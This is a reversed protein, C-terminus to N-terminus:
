RAGSLISLASRLRVAVDAEPGMGRDALARTAKGIESRSYGLRELALGLPDPGVAPEPKLDVSVPPLEFTLPLKGKLELAMRQALKKGVGPIRCLTKVDDAQVATVLGQLGLADLSALAVKPGVGNVGRLKEFAVRDVDDSFGFLTIADERVDTHVFIAVKDEARAWNALDRKSARVAYGVDRVDVVAREEDTTVITGVLRAIM